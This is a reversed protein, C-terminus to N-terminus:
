VRADEIEAHYLYDVFCYALETCAQYCYQDVMSTSEVGFSLKSRTSFSCYYTSIVASSLSWHRLEVGEQSGEQEVRPKIM